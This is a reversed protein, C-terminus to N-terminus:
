GVGAEEGIESDGGLIRFFCRSDAKGRCLLISDKCIFYSARRTGRGKWLCGSNSNRPKFTSAWVYARPTVLVPPFPPHRSRSALLPDIRSDGRRSIFGCEASHQRGTSLASCNMNNIGDCTSVRM